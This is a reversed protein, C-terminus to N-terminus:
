MHANITNNNKNLLLSYSYSAYFYCGEKQCHVCHVFFAPFILVIYKVPFNMKWKNKLQSFDVKRMSIYYSISKSHFDLYEKYKQVVKFFKRAQRHTGADDYFQM